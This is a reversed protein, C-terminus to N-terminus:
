DELIMMTPYMAMRWWWWAVEMLVEANKENDKQKYYQRKQKQWQSRDSYNSKNKDGNKKEKRQLLISLGFDNHINM